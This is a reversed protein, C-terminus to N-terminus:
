DNRIRADRQAQGAIIPKFGSVDTSAGSFTVTSHIATNASTVRAIERTLAETTLAIEQRTAGRQQQATLELLKITAAEVLGRQVTTQEDALHLREERADLREKLGVIQDKSFQKTIWWTSVAVICCLGIVLVPAGIIVPWEDKIIQIIDPM